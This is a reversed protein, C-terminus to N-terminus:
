ADTDGALRYGEHPKKHNSVVVECPEIDKVELLAALTRDIRRGLAAHDRIATRTLGNPLVKALISCVAAKDAELAEVAKQERQQDRENHVDARADGAGKVSVEWRRGHPDTRQGEEVDVAWLASHGASGGISLWLRHAGTGPEYKARRGILWWQRCFEAFGSWAIDPLEPPEYPDRGTNKKTHHCLALLCGCDRCVEAMSRLLEGQAMLNAADAGPLCLYAPDVFLVEIQYDTLFARVAELHVPDGFKPLDESWFLSTIDDLWKGAARCVNIANEQITALGSEGTMVGVRAARTVPLKGLFFGKTALSIAADVIFSTKLTKQAGAIILPQGAVLTNDILFELSYDGKALDTCTLVKYRIPQRPEGAAKAETYRDGGDFTREPKPEFRARLDSWGWHGKCSDHHCGASIAGSSHQVIFPGDGGHECMPSVRLEWRSGGEWPGPETVDFDNRAIFGAVDFATGNHNHGNATPKSTATPAPGALEELQERSVVQLSDPTSVIKAFRHPRDPTSDGKCVLTGFLKTIRSPNFVSTDISIAADSFVKSLAALCREVLGGDDAPLDIRYYLHRGNGSDCVVPDPWGRDHLYLDIEQSRQISQAVEADSASIGSIRVADLDILLWRRRVVHKDGTADGKESKRLRNAARALISPDLENLTFYFGKAAQIETLATAAIEPDDFYGSFTSPRWSESRTTAELVRVEAVGGASIFLQLASSVEAPVVLKKASGNATAIM